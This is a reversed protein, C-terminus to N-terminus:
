VHGAGPSISSPKDTPEVELTLGDVRRVRVGDGTKLPGASRVKWLEGHIRAYAGDGDVSVLTGTIGIMEERGSVVPRSRTRLALSGIGFVVLANALAIGIVLPLPMGYGAIDADFLFLGGLIMAIIGGVGLVGFSPLFVEALMLIAGVGMLAVGAWNIPMLQFAFLGLLLFIAGAVGPVGFGPSTFEIFLGYVGIMMFVVAVQPNALISLVRTRWDPEVVEVPASATALTVEGVQLKITQGDLQRLLDPVNEAMYEIVGKALADEASLSAADRVALEAWDANRDRLEALSRIYAIADNMVKRSMADGAPPAPTSAEDGPKSGSPPSPRPPESGGPTGGISVPSAAGLNTAPAMAAIHSAYLIFTGASAARAGEPAVFTAVPVPSALIAKIIQRMSTDLGGPTDLEIIVLQADADAANKLGRVIFDASAPGIVDAVRLTVVTDGAGAALPSLLGWLVLLAATAASRM